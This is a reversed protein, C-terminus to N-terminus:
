YNSARKIVGRAHDLLESEGGSTEIAFSGLDFDFSKSRPHKAMVFGHDTVNSM